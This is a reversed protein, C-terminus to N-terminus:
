TSTGNVSSCAISSQFESSHFWASIMPRKVTQRSTFLWRRTIFRPFADRYVDLQSFLQREATFEVDAVRVESATRDEPRVAVAVQRQLVLV